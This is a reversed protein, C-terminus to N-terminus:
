LVERKYVVDQRFGSTYTGPVLLQKYTWNNNASVNITGGYLQGAAMSTNSHLNIAGSAPTYGLSSLSAGLGSNAQTTYDCYGPVAKAVLPCTM